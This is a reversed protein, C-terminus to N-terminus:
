PRAFSGGRGTRAPKRPPRDEQVLDTVHGQIQLRFEQPRNLLPGHTGHTGIGVEREVRAEDGGRVPVEFFV